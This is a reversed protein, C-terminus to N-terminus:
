KVLFRLFRRSARPTKAMGCEVAMGDEETEASGCGGVYEHRASGYPLRPGPTAVDLSLLHRRLIQRIRLRREEGETTLRTWVLFEAIPGARKTLLESAAERMDFDESELDRIANATDDPITMAEARARLRADKEGFVFARFSKTFEAPDELLAAEITDAALRKGDADLLVRNAKEDKGLVTARAQELRLCIVITCCFLETADSNEGDLRALLAEGMRIRGTADEPGILVLGPRGTEKMKKLADRFFSPGSDQGFLDQLGFVFPAAAIQTLFTRRDIIM